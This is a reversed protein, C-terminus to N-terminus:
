LAAAAPAYVLCRCADVAHFRCSFTAADNVFFSWRPSLQCRFDLTAYDAAAIILPRPPPPLLTFIPPLMYLLTIVTAHSAADADHRRCCPTAFGAHRAGAHCCRFYPMLPPM